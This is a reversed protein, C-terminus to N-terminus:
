QFVADLLEPTIDEAKATLCSLRRSSLLTFGDVTRSSLTSLDVDLVRCARKLVTESDPNVVLLRSTSPTNRLLDNFHEDASAFSYGVVVVHTARQLTDDADAWDLIQQRSMVPKFSIPPVIAPMDLAPAQTADLRLSRVFAAVKEVDLAQSQQKDDTVLRRDDARLYGTLSGHFYLVRKATQPDFFNTYNFTIVDAGFGPLKAYISSPVMTACRSKLWLFAWLMWAIYLYKRQDSARGLTYLMFCNSLLEEINSTSEVFLAMVDREEQTLNGGQILARQFTRRLGTAALETLTVKSPDLLPEADGIDGVADAIKALGALDSGVLQNAEAQQCLKEIVAGIPRLEDSSALKHAASRLTPVLDAANDFLEAVIQDGKKAAYKDFSFVLHPLQERLAKSIPAGEGRTFTALEPLLDSVLPVGYAHDAGAGLVIVLRRTEASRTADSVTQVSSARDHAQERSRHRSPM